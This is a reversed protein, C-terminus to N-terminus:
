GIAADIFPPRATANLLELYQMLLVDVTNTYNSENGSPPSLLQVAPKVCIPSVAVVGFKSTRM